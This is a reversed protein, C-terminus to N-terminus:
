SNRTYFCFVDDTNGLNNWNTIQKPNGTNGHARSLAVNKTFGDLSYDNFAKEYIGGGGYNLKDGFRQYKIGNYTFTEKGLNANGSLAEADQDLMEVYYVLNHSEKGEQFAVANHVFCKSTGSALAPAYDIRKYLTNGLTDETWDKWSNNTM